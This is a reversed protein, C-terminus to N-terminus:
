GYINLGKLFSATQMEVEENSRLDIDGEDLLGGIRGVCMLSTIVNDIRKGSSKSDPKVIKMNENADRYVEAHSMQWRMLPNNDVINGRYIEEEFRKTFPSLNKINQPVEVLDINEQLETILSNSNYPDFLVCDLKYKEYAEMIDAFLQRYDVVSGETATLIGDETWKRWMASDKKLKEEMMQIPFYAKHFLFYKEQQYVCVTFATLDSRKSLDVAGVAYYPKSFDVKYKNANEVTGNWIKPQIWAKMPAVYLGLNRTKFEGQLFPNREAELRQKHLFDASVTQGLSPNAKIYKSEDTWDDGDDLCYMICFFSESEDTHIVGELIDKAQKFEEAGVSNVNDSASSIEFILGERRAGMGSQLRQIISHDDMSAVEDICCVSPNLGDMRDPDYPLAELFGANRENVIRATSAYVRLRSELAKNQRITEKCHNYIIKATERKTCAAYVQAGATMLLDYLLVASIMTSNHTVTNHKGVCFLHSGNDVAICKTPVSDVKEINKITNWDSKHNLPKIRELKRPLRFIPLDTFFRVRYSFCDKGNCKVYRSSRHYPICFTDLLRCFDDTLQKSKQSWECQCYKRNSIYGDTDMLGQLLALRQEYSASFYEEPIHKDGLLGKERLYTKFENPSKKSKGPTVNVTFCNARGIAKCGIDEFAINELTEFIDSKGVTIRSGRSEGDGLWVGLLYPSRFLDDRYKGQIPNGKPVRFPSSNYTRETMAAKRNFLEETTFTRLCEIEARGYHGKITWLHDADAVIEDGNSFTLKYCDHNLHIDSEWLVKVPMGDDGYVYDGEHIDGMTRWGSPTYIPTDLALAKGQKRGVQIFAKRYRRYGDKKNKWGYVNMLIHKQWPLLELCKGKWQGEYQKTAQAFDIVKNAEKEDFYFPFDDKKANKFDNLTRKCALKVWRSAVIKGKTIDNCYEIVEELHTKKAAM